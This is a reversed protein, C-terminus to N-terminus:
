TLYAFKDIKQQLGNKINNKKTNKHLIHPKNIHKSTKYSKGLSIRQM